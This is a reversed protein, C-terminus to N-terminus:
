PSLCRRQGVDNDANEFKRMVDASLTLLPIFIFTVGREIVGLTRLIHTGGGGTRHVVVLCDLRHPHLLQYCAELLQAPRM